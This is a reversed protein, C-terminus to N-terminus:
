PGNVLDLILQHVAGGDTFEARDFERSRQRQEASLQALRQQLTQRIKQCKPDNEARLGVSYSEIAKVMDLIHEGHVREHKEVGAMFREWSPRLLFPQTGSAEPWTYIITLNPRASALVCSGDAQPRYDRRWTLDFTTHAITRGVSAKPGREGISQYLAFGTSGNVAYTEIREKPSWAFAPLPSLLLAALLLLRM